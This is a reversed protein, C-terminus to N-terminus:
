DEASQLKQSLKASEKNWKEELPNM